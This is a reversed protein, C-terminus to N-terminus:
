KSLLAYLGLGIGAAVILFCTGALLLGRPRRGSSREESVAISLGVLGFAYASVLGAGAVFGTVMVQWLVDLNVSGSM